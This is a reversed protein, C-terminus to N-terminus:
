ARMRTPAVSERWRAGWCARVGFRFALSSRQDRKKRRAELIRKQRGRRWPRVTALHKACTTAPSPAGGEQDGLACRAV